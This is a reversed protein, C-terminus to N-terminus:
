KKGNDSWPHGEDLPFGNVDCAQSYGHHEAVRKTGSHCSACLAQWNKENWFLNYDWGHPKKHDVVTAPTIKGREECLVCLPHASLFAARRKRWRPTHYWNKEHTPYISKM